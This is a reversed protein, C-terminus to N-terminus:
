FLSGDEVEQDMFGALFWSSNTDNDLGGPAGQAIYAIPADLGFEPDHTVASLSTDLICNELTQKLMRQM